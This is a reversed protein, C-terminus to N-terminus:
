WIVGITKYKIDSFRIKGDNITNNDGKAIFYVGKNDEGKEIVRHVIYHEDQKFTIIDGVNIDQESDPVIRIGNSGEDLVPIMSGTPAYKSLSAGNINIVIKDDYVQIQDETVFDSPAKSNNNINGIGLSNLYPFEVSYTIFNLCSASAFGLLFIICIGIIKLAKM